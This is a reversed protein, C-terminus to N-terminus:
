CFANADSDSINHEVFVNLGEGLKTGQTYGTAALIALVHANHTVHESDTDKQSLARGVSQLAARGLPTTERFCMGCRAWHYVLHM